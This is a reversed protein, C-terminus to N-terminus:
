AQAIKTYVKLTAAANNAWTFKEAQRRGKQGLETAYKKDILVKKLAQAMAEVDNPDILVAAQGTVEPISSTNTTIVPLGLQMAELVPLGFGEYLTPFVFATANKMLLIKHNHSIYGLHKVSADLKMKKIMAVAPEGNYGVGGALVLQVDKVVEPRSMQLRNWAEFLTLLNKRPEITGVFVIYRKSLKYKKRVDHYRDSLDLLATDAAEPIVTIKKNPVNFLEQMDRKTAQSVSIIHKAKRISQPVLLRTSFMQTPFWEPHRYIALDHLTIVSRKPYTLPVTNAPGHFVTLRHKLLAASVLMHSYAFPLFKGYSSFPFFSINVNAQVFEQTAERPMRYDFFLVYDNNRDQDLLTRVLHYTYHGVGAREGSRPNLVTRCDIGIRM